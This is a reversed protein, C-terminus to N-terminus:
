EQGAAQRASSKDRNEMEPNRCERNSQTRSNHRATAPSLSDKHRICGFRVMGSSVPALDADEDGGGEAVHLLLTLFQDLM